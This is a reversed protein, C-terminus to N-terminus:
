AITSVTDGDQIGGGVGNASGRGTGTIQDAAVCAISNRDAAVSGCCSGDTEIMRFVCGVIREAVVVAGNVAAHGICRAPRSLCEVEIARVTEDIKAVRGTEIGVEDCYLTPPKPYIKDSIAINGQDVLASRRM